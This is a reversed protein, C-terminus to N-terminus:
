HQYGGTLSIVPVLDVDSTQHMKRTTSMAKTYVAYLGVRAELNASKAMSRNVPTLLL